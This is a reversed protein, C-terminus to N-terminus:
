SDKVVYDAGEKENHLVKYAVIGALSCPSNCPVSVLKILAEEIMLGMM